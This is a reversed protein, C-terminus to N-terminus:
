VRRAWRLAHLSLSRRRQLEVRDGDIALVGLQDRMRRQSKNTLDDLAGRPYSLARYTADPDTIGFASARTRKSPRASGDELTGARETTAM